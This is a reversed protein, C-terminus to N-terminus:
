RTTWASWRENLADAHDMWFSDSFFLAEKINDGAPLNKAIEAPMDGVAKTNTPGYPMLESFKAQNPANNAINLFALAKDKFPSNTPVAWVDINYIHNKWVFEMPKGEKKGMIIRGNYATSMVVNGAALWEVPQSGSEWFQLLDKITDLKAFARDVGEPTSLVDYVQDLPVGDGILAYELNFMPTNRMGRKGPYKERNFFDKWDQPAEPFLITNYAYGNGIVVNGAGCPQVAVKLLEDKHEVKDWNIQEFLGEDCGLQLTAGDTIVLDWTVNGTDAMTKLEALGGLYTTEIFKLNQEKAFPKFYAERQADQYNGGWGAITFDRAEATSVFACALAAITGTKLLRM